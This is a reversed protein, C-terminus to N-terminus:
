TERKTDQEIADREALEFLNVLEDITQVSMKEVRSGEHRSLYTDIIRYMLRERPNDGLPVASPLAAEAAVLAQDEAESRVPRALLSYYRALRDATTIDFTTTLGFLDSTLIQDVSMGDLGLVAPREITTGNEGRDLIVVEGEILGRLPLPDHTTMLFQALPFTERLAEVVALRWSPHLHADIEDILIFAQASTMGNWVEYMVDMIDATIAVISKFGSSLEDLPQARGNEDVILRNGAGLSAKARGRLVANLARTADNLREVDPEGNARRLHQRLGFAGNVLARESFLSQIRFEYESGRHTLERRAAMRYAGYGLVMVPVQAHGDFAPSSSNFSVRNTRETGWFEVVIEGEEEGETLCWNPTVNADLAREPGLCGLAAAQLVSTKGVGNDGLVVVSGAAKVQEKGRPPFELVAQVLGRFHRVSVRRVYRRRRRGEDPRWGDDILDPDEPSFANTILNGLTRRNTPRRRMRARALYPPFRELLALWAAGSYPARPLLRDIRASMPQRPSLFVRLVGSRAEILTPRNLDLIDITMEGRSTKGILNGRHDISFHDAPLDACPDILTEREINRLQAVSRRIPGRPDAPFRNRKERLCDPCALYLNAWDLALWCYHQYHVEGDGGEAGQQPRFHDIEGGTTVPTECYACAGEFLRDLSRRLERDELVEFPLKPPREGRNGQSLYRDVRVRYDQALTSRLAAPGAVRRRDIYRM